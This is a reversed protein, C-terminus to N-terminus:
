KSNKAEKLIRALTVTNNRPQIVVNHPITKAEVNAITTTKSAKDEEFASMIFAKVAAKSTAAGKDAEQIKELEEKVGKAVAASINAERAM